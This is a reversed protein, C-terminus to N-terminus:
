FDHDEEEHYEEEDDEEEDDEEEDEPYAEAFVKRFEDVYEEANDNSYSEVVKKIIEEDIEKSKFLEKLVAYAIMTIVLPQCWEKYQKVLSEISDIGKALCSDDLDVKVGISKLHMFM